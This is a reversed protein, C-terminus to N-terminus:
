IVNPTGAISELDVETMLIAQERNPNIFARMGGGLFDRSVEVRGRSQFNITQASLAM